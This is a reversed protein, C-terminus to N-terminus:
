SDSCIKNNLYVVLVISTLYTLCFVIFPIQFSLYNFITFSVEYFRSLIPFLMFIFGILSVFINRKLRILNLVIGVIGILAFLQEIHGFQFCNYFLWFAFPLQIMEGSLMILLYSILSINRLRNGLSKTIYKKM